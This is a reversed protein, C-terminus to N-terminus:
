NGRNTTRGAPHGFPGITNHPREHVLSLSPDALREGGVDLRFSNALTFLTANLGCTRFAALVGTCYRGSKSSPFASPHRREAGQRHASGDSSRGDPRASPSRAPVSVTSRVT